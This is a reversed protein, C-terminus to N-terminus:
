YQEQIAKYRYIGNPVDRGNDMIYKEGNMEFLCVSHPQALSRGPLLLETAYYGAKKLCYITFKTNSRCEMENYKFVYQPSLIRDRTRPLNYTMTYRFRKREYYDILQPANLRDTVVDFDDWQDKIMIKILERAEKTFLFKGKKFLKVIEECFQDNSLRRRRANYDSRIDENKIGRLIKDVTNQSIKSSNTFTWSQDLLSNLSYDSVANSLEINDKSIAIWFLAQLPSCYKRVEPKGIRYMKEFVLDFAHSDKSYAVYLNRIAKEEDSDIGDKFEPLKTLEKVLLQNHASLKELSEPYPGQYPNNPTTACGFFCAVIFLNIYKLM